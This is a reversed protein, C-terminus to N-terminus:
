QRMWDEPLLIKTGAYSEDVHTGPDLSILRRSAPDWVLIPNGFRKRLKDATAIGSRCDGDGAAINLPSFSYRKPTMLCEPGIVRGSESWWDPHLSVQLYPFNEAIGAIASGRLVRGSAPDAVALAFLNRREILLRILKRQTRTSGRNIEAAICEPCEHPVPIDLMKPEGQVLIQYPAHFPCNSVRIKM